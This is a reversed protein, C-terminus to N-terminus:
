ICMKRKYAGAGSPPTGRTRDGYFKAHIDLIAVTDFSTSFKWFIEVPYTPHVSTVSLGVSSLRCVSPRAIAVLLRKPMVSSYARIGINCTMEQKM